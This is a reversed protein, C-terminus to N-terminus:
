YNIGHLFYLYYGNLIDLPHVLRSYEVGSLTHSIQRPSDHKPMYDILFKPAKGGSAGCVNPDKVFILYIQLTSGGKSLYQHLAEVDCLAFAIEARELAHLTPEYNVKPEHQDNALKPTTPILQNLKEQQWM